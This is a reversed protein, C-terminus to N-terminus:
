KMGLTLLRNYKAIREGRNIGGFKVYDAKVSLAFDVIWDDSTEEGRHSVIVKLNNKRALEVAEITGSITGNQNPKIIVGNIAKEDIAQQIRSANTVTLDDGVLLKDTGYQAFFAAWKQWDEDSHPDELYYINYNNFLTQYEQEQNEKFSGAADLALQRGPFVTKILELVLRNTFNMPSFGGEAGVTTEIHQTELYHRMTKYDEIAQEISDEILMFEQITLNPNGHKGGEFLLMNLKPFSDYHLEKGAITTAKWFAASVALSSNGAIKSAVLKKDLQEQDWDGSLITDKIALVQQIADDAPINPAEYKGASIGAPIVVSATVNNELWLRVKITANGMSSLQKIAKIDKIKM